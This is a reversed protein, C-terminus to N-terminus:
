EVPRQSRNPAQRDRNEVRQAAGRPSRLQVQGTRKAHITEIRGVTRRTVSVSAAGALVLVLAIVLALATNIKKAFEALDSIDMGALLRYGDSLKAFQARLVTPDVM